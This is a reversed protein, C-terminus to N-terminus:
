QSPQRESIGRLRRTLSPPRRARWGIPRLLIAALTVPKKVENALAPLIGASRSAALAPLIGAGRSAPADRIDELREWFHKDLLTPM